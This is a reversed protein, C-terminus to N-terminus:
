GGGGGFGGSFGHVHGPHFGGIGSYTSYYGYHAVIIPAYFFRPGYYYGPGRAAVAAPAQAATADLPGVLQNRVGHLLRVALCVLEPQTMPMARRGVIAYAQELLNLTENAEYTSLATLVAAAVLPYELYAGMGKAIIALKTAIGDAPLESVALYASALEVDESLQYGWGTFMSRLTQFKPSLTEFPTNLIALLAASEYSRTVTLYQQFNPTAVTGDARRGLLLLSAVGLASEKPVDLRVVDDFLQRLVGLESVIPRGLSVLAEASMLRNELNGSIGALQNYDQVFQTAPDSGGTPAQALGISIGWLHARDAGPIAPAIGGYVEAGRDSLESMEQRLKQADAWYQAFDTDSLRYLRVALNRREVLGLSTMGAYRDGYPVLTDFLSRQSILEVLQQNKAALDADVAKLRDAETAAAQVGQAQKEKGELHFLFSSTRRQDTAALEALSARQSQEEAIAAQAAGMGDVSARLKQYDDATLFQALQCQALLAEDAPGLAQPTSRTAVQDFFSAVQQCSTM